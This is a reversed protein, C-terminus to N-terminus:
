ALDSAINGKMHSRDHIHNFSVIIKKRGQFSVFQLFNLIPSVAIRVARM